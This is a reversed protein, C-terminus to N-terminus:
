DNDKLMKKGAHYSLLFGLGIGLLVAGLFPLPGLEELVIEWDSVSSGVILAGYVFSTLVLIAGAITLGWGWGARAVLRERLSKQPKQMNRLVEDPNDSKELAKMMLDTRQNEQHKKHRFWFWAILVAATLWGLSELLGKLPYIIDEM